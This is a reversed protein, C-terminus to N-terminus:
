FLTTLLGTTNTNVDPFFITSVAGIIVIALCLLAFIVLLKETTDFQSWKSSSVKKVEKNDKKESM